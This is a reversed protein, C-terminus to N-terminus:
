QAGRRFAFAMISDRGADIEHLSCEIGMFGHARMWDVFGYMTWYYLHEGPRYHKSERIRTLDRFVPISILVITGPRIWDLVHQPNEMHEIADWMTVVDFLSVNVAYIGDRKLREVARPMVDFGRARYGADNAARVFAGTGAGIDILRRGAPAHRRCMQLRGEIVANAIEAGEYASVKEWYADDYAVRGASMDAQYAIGIPRILMLDGDREAPLRRIIPDM